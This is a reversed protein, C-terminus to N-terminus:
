SFPNNDRDFVFLIPILAKNEKLRKYNELVINTLGLKCFRACDNEKRRSAFKKMDPVPVQEIKRGELTTAKDPTKIATDMSGLSWDFVRKIPSDPQELRTSLQSYGCHKWGYVMVEESKGCVKKVSDMDLKNVFDVLSFSNSPNM